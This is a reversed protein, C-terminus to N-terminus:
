HWENPTWQTNIFTLCGQQLEDILAHDPTAQAITEILKPHKQQMYQYLSQEFRNIDALNIQDLLGYSNAFLSLIIEEPNLPQQNKQKMLETTRKGQDIQAKTAPDLDSSFQSFAELERYQALSIRTQSSLKKIMPRQAAGGVRSVSLGSNM